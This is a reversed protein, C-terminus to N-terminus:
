APDFIGDKLVSRYIAMAQDIPQQAAWNRLDFAANISSVILHSAILPDVIRVTGERMGDVLAGMVGLATRNAQEVAVDRVAPPMAQLATSRLLPFDSGIQLALASGLAATIRLWPSAHERNARIQLAALRHYSHRSCAAVLDDKADIHHYFSGKTRNLEGTIREVSAGKYGIENILRTAVRLFAEREASEVPMDPPFTEATWETGPTAIGGDLVDLLRRRVNPFDGIAHHQLWIESWFLAENLIHTRAVFLRKRAQSAPRGFFARVLRFLDQYQAILAHRTEEELARIESLNAFPRVEGRLAAAHQDFYLEVYRAVRRRADRERGAERVLDALRALSDEFVAAALHEKRRFYYTVSTTTLDLAGAVELLTMGRVGKGNLLVTAADLIRQKQREFRASSRAVNPEGGPHPTAESM